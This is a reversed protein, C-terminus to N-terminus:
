GQARDVLSIFADELTPPVRILRRLAIHHAALVIKIAEEVEEARPTAVHLGYGFVAAESVYPLRKILNLAEGLRERPQVAIIQETVGAKLERPTGQAILRGASILVLRDCFEAEDMYHTTVLITVGQDAMAYILDWFNRRSIPDVGSTAEDLFLIPPEHLIASALALRQKLGLPLLGTFERRREWLGVLNLVERAREKVRAPSLGYVGGFFRLNEEATLDQYLSFRQSMYGLNARIRDQERIIDYGGVSGSGGTPLLLGCLMRITTSKGAGNPGLFGFIEGRNVEFSIGDVAKFDGFHRSLKEVVIAKDTDLDTREVVQPFFSGAM